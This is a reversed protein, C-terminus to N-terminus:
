IRKRTTLVFFNTENSVRSLNVSLSLWPVRRRTGIVFRMGLEARLKLESQKEPTEEM